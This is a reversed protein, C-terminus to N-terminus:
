SGQMQQEKIRDEIIKSMDTEIWRKLDPSKLRLIKNDYTITVQDSVSVGTAMWGNSVVISIPDVADFISILKGDKTKMVFENPGGGNSIFQNRSPGIYEAHSLWYIIKAVTMKQMNNNMEMQIPQINPEPPGGIDIAASVVDEIAPVKVM